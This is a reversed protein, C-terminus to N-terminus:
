SKLLGLAAQVITRSGPLIAEELSRAAGIVPGAAGVRALHPYNGAAALTALVEAGVGFAAAGEELALLPRRPPCLALLGAKDLPSLRSPAVIRAPIEHEVLLAEAAEMVIPLMGGYCVLTIAEDAFETLSLSLWPGDAPGTLHVFFNGIMAGPKAQVRYGYAMKNEILLTPNGTGLAAFMLEALPHLPSPALVNLGGVGCFRADLTQSHTPGYGRRGGMPTRILVPLRVQDNYMQRYRALHNVLQDMALCLFDGFMIEAVVPSGHMAMGGALGVIASESIPMEWVRAPYRASLGATVKFAGGYPDLIDEGIVCLERDAAMLQHLAGNLLERMTKGSLQELHKATAPDRAVPTRFEAEAAAPVSFIPEPSAHAREYAQDVRVKAKSWAKERVEPVLSQELRALPDLAGLGAMTDKDRTDDGKSHPGLRASEIVLVFPKGGDSRVHANAAAAAEYVEDVTPYQLVATRIGIAEARAAYTGSMTLATPTSQAIGNDEVVVLLPAARKAAINLAEYVAGEGWTGDGIFLTAINKAGRRKEALALGLALPATGGQVGNSYFRRPVCLHQSGGWGGCIGTRRGMVEALLEDVRGTAALFHGHGRHNSVVIDDDRLAACVGVANAEQGIYTHTTGVLLGESFLSLLRQEFVRILVTTEYAHLLAQGELRSFRATATAAALVPPTAVVSGPLATPDMKRM